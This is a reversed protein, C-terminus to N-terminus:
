KKAALDGCAVYTPIDSTSKHVNVAFTGATLQAMPVDVLSTSTGDVVNTLPYKPKPNLKACPGDHIHAPQPVDTPANALAVDVRTKDGQATLTVTGLEASGNQATRCLRPAARRRRVRAHRSRARRRSRHCRAFPQSDRSGGFLTHRQWLTAPGGRPDSGAAIPERVLAISGLAVHRDSRQSDERLACATMLLSSKALCLESAAVGYCMSLRRVGSGAVILSASGRAGSRGSTQLGYQSDSHIPRADDSASAWLIAGVGAGKEIM